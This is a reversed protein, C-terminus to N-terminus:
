GQVRQVYAISWSPVFIRDYGTYCVNTRNDISKTVKKEKSPSIMYLLVLMIFIGICIALKKNDSM